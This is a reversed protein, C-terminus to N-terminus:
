NVGCHTSLWLPQRMLRHTPTMKLRRQVEKLFSQLKKQQQKKSKTLIVAGEELHRGANAHCYLRSMFASLPFILDRINIDPESVFMIWDNSLLLICGNWAAKYIGSEKLSKGTIVCGSSRTVLEMCYKDIGILWSGKSTTITNTTQFHKWELKLKWQKLGASSSSLRQTVCPIRPDDPVRKM